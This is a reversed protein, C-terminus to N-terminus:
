PNINELKGYTLFEICDSCIDAEFNSEKGLDSAFSYTERNGGKDNGCCECQNWSFFGESNSDAPSYCGSKVGNRTLFLEVAQKYTEYEQTDM